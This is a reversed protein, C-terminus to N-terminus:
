FERLNRITITPDSMIEERLYSFKSLLNLTDVGTFLGIRELNRFLWRIGENDRMVCFKPSFAIASGEVINALVKELSPYANDAMDTFGLDWCITSFRWTNASLKPFINTTEFDWNSVTTNTDNLGHVRQSAIRRALFLAGRGKIDKSNMWGLTPLVRFRKFHPSNLVKRSSRADTDTCPRIRAVPVDTLTNGPIIEDVYVPKGEYLVVSRQLREAAQQADTWFYESKKM